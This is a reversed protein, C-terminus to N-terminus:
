CSMHPSFIRWYAFNNDSNGKVDLEYTVAKLRWGCFGPEFRDIAVSSRYIEGTRVIPVHEIHILPYRTTDNKPMFDHRRTCAGSSDQASNGDASYVAVLDKVPVTLPLTGSVALIRNPSPNNEPYQRDGHKVIVSPTGYRARWQYVGGYIGVCAVAYLPLKMLVFRWAASDPLMRSITSPSFACLLVWVSLVLTPLVIAFLGVLGAMGGVFLALLCIAPVTVGAAVRLLLDLISLMLKMNNLM